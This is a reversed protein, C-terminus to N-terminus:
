SGWLPAKTCLDTFDAQFQSYICSVMQAVLDIKLKVKISNIAYNFISSCYICLIASAPPPLVTDCNRGPGLSLFLCYYNNWYTHIIPKFFSIHTKAYDFCLNSLLASYDRSPLSVIFVYNIQDSHCSQKRSASNVKRLLLSVNLFIWLLINSLM